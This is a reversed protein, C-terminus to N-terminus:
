AAPTPPYPEPAFLDGALYKLGFDVAVTSVTHGSGLESALQLAGVVNMGTSTGAFIGEERALRRAMARAEGEDIARAEHYASRDLLPPAYGLGVGEIRHSGTKGQSLFPSGSPELAVIRPRETSGCLARAVGMLMGSTGVGGCFAHIDGDVQRALEHGIQEYGILSDRNHLQRTYYVGTGRALEEAKAEMQQFLERRIRKGESPIIILEAGLAQMTALKERAFVDSSVATFPYGKVACVLALSSGTSGGTFEVVGMGPRLAGRKEAEEIMALAMRDKYSGTPNFYELKVLVRASGGPVIRRLPVVPTGGITQLVSPVLEPITVPMTTRLESHPSRFLTCPV